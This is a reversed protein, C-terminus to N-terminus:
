CAGWSGLLVALDAPGVFGNGDIDAPNGPGPPVPGWAGLLLAIDAGGVAGDGDLDAPCPPSALFWPTSYPSNLMFDLLLSGAKQEGPQAPHTGDNQFDACQWTLGDSRPTLGDAWLYAGWVIVPAAALDLPGIDPAPPNGSLQSIQAEILWKMSFASEYAYPEPNLPTDAYGAYIRSSVFMIECNPYRIKVARAIRAASSLLNRADSNAAPLSNVPGANAVKVWVAQVQAESLGQPALVQDRVRDYNMDAPDDWTTAAQGGRAGNAIVLHATNVAPDLAAQGSFTWPDCPIAGSQSCFEQTTNSMGISLLVYKGAADPAGAFNRPQISNAALIARAHHPPPPTNLGNPYLGGPFQGLYLGAGLDKLPILGTSVGACNIAPAPTAAFVLSFASILAFLAFKSRFARNQHM